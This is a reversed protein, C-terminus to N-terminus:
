TLDRPYEVIEVPHYFFVRRNLCHCHQWRGGPFNRRSWKEDFVGGCVAVTEIIEWLDCCYVPYHWYVPYTSPVLVISFKQTSGTYQILVTHQWYVPATGTNPVVMISSCFWCQTSGTYQILALISSLYWCQTSGTYQLLVPISKPEVLISEPECYECYFRVMVAYMGRQEDRDVGPVGGGWGRM